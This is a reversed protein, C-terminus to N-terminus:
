IFFQLFQVPINIKGAFARTLLPPPPPPEDEDEDEDYASQLGNLMDPVLVTM